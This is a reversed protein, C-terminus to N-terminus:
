VNWSRSSKLMPTQPQMSIHLSWTQHHFQHQLAPQPQNCATMMLLWLMMTSLSGKNSCQLQMMTTNWRRKIVMLEWTSKSPVLESIVWHRSKTRKRVFRANSLPIQAVLRWGIKIPLIRWSPRILSLENLYKKNGLFFFYLIIHICCFLCKFHDDSEIHDQLTWFQLSYEAIGFINPTHSAHGIPYFIIILSLHYVFWVKESNM